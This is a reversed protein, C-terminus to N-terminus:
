KYNYKVRVEDFNIERDKKGSEVLDVTIINNIYHYKNM